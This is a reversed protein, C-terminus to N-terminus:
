SEKRGTRPPLASGARKPASPRTALRERMIRSVERDDVGPLYVVLKPYHMNQFVELMPRGEERSEGEKWVFEGDTQYGPAPYFEDAVVVDDRSVIGMLYDVYLENQSRTRDLM